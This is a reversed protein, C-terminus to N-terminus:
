GPPVNPRRKGKHERGPIHIGQPPRSLFDRQDRNAGSNWERGPCPSGPAGVGQWFWFSPPAARILGRMKGESLDLDEVPILLTAASVPWALPCIGIIWTAVVVLGSVALITGLMLPLVGGLIVVLGTVRKGKWELLAQFGLGGVLLVLSFTVVSLASLDYQPFWRSDVVMGAFSSWGYAGMAVMLVLWPVGTAPDSLPSLKTKGLKRARRWGRVQGEDDPTILLSMWFLNKM